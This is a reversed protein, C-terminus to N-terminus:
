TCTIPTPCDFKAQYSLLIPCRQRVFKSSRSLSGLQQISFLHTALFRMLIFFLSCWHYYEYNIIQKRFVHSKQFISCPHKHILTCKQVNQISVIIKINSLVSIILYYYVISCVMIIHFQVEISFILHKLSKNIM